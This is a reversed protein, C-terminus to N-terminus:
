AEHVGDIRSKMMINFIYLVGTRDLCNYITSIRESILARPSILGPKFGFMKSNLPLLETATKRKHSMRQENIQETKSSPSNQTAMEHQYGKDHTEPSRHETIKAKGAYGNKIKINM